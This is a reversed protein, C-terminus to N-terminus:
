LAIYCSIVYLLIFYYLAICRVMQPCLVYVVLEFTANLWPMAHAGYVGSRCTITAHCIDLLSCFPIYHPCQRYIVTESIARFSQMACADCAASSCTILAHCIGVWAESGCTILAYYIHQLQCPKPGMPDILSLTCHMVFYYVTICLLVFYCLAIYLLLQPWSMHMGLESITDLSPMVYAGYVGSSCTIAIHCICHLSWFQMYHHCPVYTMLESVAYFLIHCIGQLSWFQMCYSCLMHGDLNWFPICHPCPVHRSPVLTWSEYSRYPKSELTICLLVFDYSSICYLDFYYSLGYWICWM